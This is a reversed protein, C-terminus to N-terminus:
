STATFIPNSEEKVPDTKAKWEMSRDIFQNEEDSLPNILGGLIRINGTIIFQENHSCSHVIAMGWIAGSSADVGNWFDINTADAKYDQITGTRNYTLVSATSCARSVNGRVAEPAEISVMINRIIMANGAAILAEMVAEDTTDGVDVGKRILILADNGGMYEDCVGSENYDGFEGCQLISM